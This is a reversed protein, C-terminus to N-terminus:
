VDRFEEPDRYRYRHVTRGGQVSNLRYEDRKWIRKFASIVTNLDPLEDPPPFDIPSPDVRRAEEAYGNRQVYRAVWRPLRDVYVWGDAQLRACSM